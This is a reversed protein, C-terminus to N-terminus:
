VTKKAPKPNLVKGFVNIVRKTKRVKSAAKPSFVSTIETLDSFFQDLEKM